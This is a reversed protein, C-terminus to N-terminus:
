QNAYSNNIQDYDNSVTVTQKALDQYTSLGEMKMIDDYHQENSHSHSNDTAQRSEQKKIIRRRAYKVMWVILLVVCMSALGGIFFGFRIIASSEKSVPMDCKRGRYGDNCGVRCNGELIDCSQNFCTDCLYACNFGFYGPVCEQDCSDGKWGNKCGDDSCEGTFMNCPIKLCNCMKNCNTGFHWDDCKENCYKGYVYGPKCFSDIKCVGNIHNCENVICGDCTESCNWGFNGNSCEETCNFGEWGKLCGAKCQGTVHDCPSTLCNLSCDRLCQNGFKGEGCARNCKEGLWGSSCGFVCNGTRLDCSGICHDPCTSECRDGYKGYPCGGIEIECLEVMNNGSLFPPVYTLYNCVAFTIIDTDLRLGSYLLTGSNWKDTTNSCYVAHNNDATTKDRGFVIHVTTITSLSEFEIQLYSSTATSSFIICTSILGDVSLGANSQGVPFINVTQNYALNYKNCYQGARGHVCGEFCAGTNQYCNRNMCNTSDCGWVCSGNTPNCHQDICTPPCPVTCNEGWFGKWCGNIEIYCLEILSNRHFYFMNRTPSLNCDISQNLNNHAQKGIDRFCLETKSYVSGNAFYLRFDNM